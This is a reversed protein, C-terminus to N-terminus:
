QEELAKVARAYWKAAILLEEMAELMESGRTSEYAIAAGYLRSSASMIRNGVKKRQAANM